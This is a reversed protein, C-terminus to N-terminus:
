MLAPPLDEPPFGASGWQHEQFKAQKKQVREEQHSAMPARTIQPNILASGWAIVHLCKAAVRCYTRQEWSVISVASHHTSSSLVM